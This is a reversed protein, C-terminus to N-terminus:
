VTASPVSPPVMWTWRRSPLKTVRGTGGSRSVMRRIAEILRPRVNAAEAPSSSAV